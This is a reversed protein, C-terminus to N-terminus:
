SSPFFKARLLAQVVDFDEGIGARAQAIGIELSRLVQERTPKIHPM